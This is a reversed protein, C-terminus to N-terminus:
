GVEKCILTLGARNGEWDAPPAILSFVRSGYLVRCEATIDGRWRITIRYLGEHVIIGDGSVEKAHTCKIGAWVTAIDAWTIVEQGSPARSKVPRQICIRKNLKGAEM